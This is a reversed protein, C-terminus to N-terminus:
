CVGAKRAGGVGGAPYFSPDEAPKITLAMVVMGGCSRSSCKGGNVLRKAERKGM